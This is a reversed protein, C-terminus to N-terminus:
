GAAPQPVPNFFTIGRVCADSFQFQQHAIATVKLGLTSYDTLTRPSPIRAPGFIRVTLKSYVIASTGGVAPCWVPRSARVSAPWVRRQSHVRALNERVGNAVANPTGWGTWELGCLVTLGAGPLRPKWVAPAAYPDGPILGMRPANLGQTCGPNRRSPRPGSIGLPTCGFRGTQGKPWFAPEASGAELDIRYATYVRIGACSRLGSLTVAVPSTHAPPVAYTEDTGDLLSVNGVGEARPGGWSSWTISSVYNSVLPSLNMEGIDNPSFHTPEVARDTLLAGIVPMRDARADATSVFSLTFLAALAGLCLQRM